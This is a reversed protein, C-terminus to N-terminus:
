IELAEHLRSIVADDDLLAVAHQRVAIAQAASMGVPASLEIKIKMPITLTTSSDVGPVDIDQVFTVYSRASGRYNGNVQPQVRSFALTNRKSLTHDPGIYISKNTSEDYRRMAVATTTGTNETDVNLTITNELM